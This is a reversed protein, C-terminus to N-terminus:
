HLSNTALRFLSLALPHREKRFVFRRNRNVMKRERKWKEHANRHSSSTLRAITREEERKADSSVNMEGRKVPKNGEGQM